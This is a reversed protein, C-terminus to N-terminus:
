VCTDISHRILVDIGTSWALARISAWLCEQRKETHVYAGVIVPDRLRTCMDTCMDIFMEICMEMYIDMCMDTYTDIRMGICMDICM